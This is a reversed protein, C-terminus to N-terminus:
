KKKFSRVTGSVIFVPVAFFKYVSGILPRGGYQGSFAIDFSTVGPDGFDFLMTHVFNWDAKWRIGNKTTIGSDIEERTLDSVERGYEIDHPRCGKEDMRSIGTNEANSGTAAPSCYNGYWPILNKPFNDFAHKITGKLKKWGDNLGKWAGAFLDGLEDFKNKTDWLADKVGNKIASTLQSVMGGLIGLGVSTFFDKWQGQLAMGALQMSSVVSAVKNYIKLGWRLATTLAKGFASTLRGLGPMIFDLAFMAIRVWRNNLVKSVAAAVASFIKGLKKFFRKIAGWFLGDPDTRNVPDNAVYTYLNLTQPHEISSANMGIPDVQTFRGQQSDYHRNVAYDLGTTVSRNYSTFRRNTAGTSESSLATGFPLTVQEFSNTNQANSVIRTGLRDPHHYDVAAGGGGNPTLTSLLRGGIYVYSKSWYPITGAGTETFEALVSGDDASYYTRQGAEESILRQKSSGYTYSALVTVNDDAKVKVLRNAADYQFREWGAGSYVRTQNGAADYAWGGDNIRNNAVDFHLSGWGDGPVTAGGPPSYPSTGSVHLEFELSWDFGARTANRGVAATNQEWHAWGGADPDRWLYAQYLDYVYDHDNRGRNTYEQSTFVAGGLNQMATWFQSSGQTYATQLTSLWSNLETSNPQRVLAKLYFNRVFAEATHSFANNRNGYRDYYYRQAWNVNQGGTARKLRGLSDYEYARDKSHDLNNSISVLQGTHKGNAGAYNYGFNLLTTAGRAVTQSELLGTVSNYGYSETIQNGGNGVNLSTAQSAANYAINSAHNAGDVTLSTLRSAVDYNHHVLKRLQSGNGYEAPYRVDTNRDLTDYIYDTVFPYSPRSSLSLTKSSVRGESDYALTETSVGSTSTSVLQTIDKLESGSSKTRYTYTVTPAALIPNATDGFGTTDYSVSQLRNFPDNNYTYVTKVGRADKRSTLNSRDDYTLVESWSGSGVYTGADNLTANAEALRQAVMRGLSDYKFARTQSGQTVSTLNGATDYGYTTAMGNTAVSGSGNQDPEVVEVLRGLADTRGWRERGWPDIVRTTDGPTSSAVSPRGSENYFSQVVSGDPATTSTVRSLADYVSTNWRIIDGSRYPRSQQTLRGSSDFVSDVIDWVGGAGLAKEQRVQGRGNVYRVNQKAITTHTPHSELYTTETLTLNADDYSYDTHAGTPLISTVPRLSTTDYTTQAVRGNADATSFMLGTNFDFTSSSTMQNLADTPSGRTVSVPYAYQTALNFTNTSQQCCANSSVVLNGTVDYQKTETVAGTLGAADAYTTVQTVLGRYDTTGNYPCVYYQPCYGDCNYDWCGGTCDPDNWDYDWYCFGEADAHPNYAQDHMIVQPAALLPQGDYVYETRSVRTVNDGAYVEVTLPLNFIHRSSTYLSNNQYTTRTSRLLAGGYDYNRVDTV